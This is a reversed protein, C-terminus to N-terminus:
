FFIKEKREKGEWYRVVIDCREPEIKRYAVVRRTATLMGLRGSNM